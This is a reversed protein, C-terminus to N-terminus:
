NCQIHRLHQRQMVTVLGASVFRVLMVGVVRTGCLLVLPLVCVYVDVGVRVVCVVVVGYGVVACVHLVMSSLM